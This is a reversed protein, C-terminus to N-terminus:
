RVPVSVEDERTPDAALPAPPVPAGSPTTQPLPLTVEVTTGNGQTSIWEVRAGLKRARERIGICGFHGAKGSIAFSPDFGCGNDAIRLRLTAREITVEITISSARAHKIANAVSERAIMRLHHVVEPLLPPIPAAFEVHVEAGDATGSRAAILELSAALDCDNAASSRLDAVINRTEVQVRSLLGRSVEIIRRAKDDLGCMAAADLRLSLGTLDQQLSDHFERAIRQREELAAESQLRLRLAATQRRVQRRLVAIWLGAVLVVGALAVLVIGLRRATWWSPAKLVTLDGPARLQLTVVQPRSSLIVSKSSVVECIGTVRVLSGLLIDGSVSPGRAQLAKGDRQLSIVVGNDTRFFDTVTATLTVLDGDRGGGLVTPMDTELPVPPPGPTRNLLRADVVSASFRGMETFGLADIRDGVELTTPTNFRLSFATQGSRIFVLVRSFSATVIGEVRVRHNRQEGQGAVRFTLLDAAAVRPVRDDPVAPELETIRTSDQTRLYPQVLQRRRNIGGAALGEVRVRSDVLADDDDIGADVWAEVIRSDADIRLVSRSESAPTVSRVIGELAVHQYHYRGSMLSDYGVTVAPPLPGHGVIRYASAGLGPLYSGPQTAGTVEVIDGPRLPGPRDPRFFTGATEDQLFVAGPGEIFTVTGRLRAPLGSKAEDFSLSRVQLATTLEAGVGLTALAALGALALGRALWVGTRTREM